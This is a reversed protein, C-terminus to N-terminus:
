RDSRHNTCPEGRYFLYVVPLESSSEHHGSNIITIIPGFPSCFTFTTRSVYYCVDVALTLAATSTHNYSAMKLLRWIVEREGGSVPMHGDRVDRVDVDDRGGM